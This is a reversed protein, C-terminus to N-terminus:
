KTLGIKGEPDCTIGVTELYDSIESDSLNKVNSTIDMLIKTRMYPLLQPKDSLAKDISVTIRQMASTMENFHKDFMAKSLSM